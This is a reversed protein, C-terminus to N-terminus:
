IIVVTLFVNETAEVLFFKEIADRFDEVILVGFKHSVVRLGRGDEM